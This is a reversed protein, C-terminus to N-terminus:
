RLVAADRWKRFASRDPLIHETLHTLIVVEELMSKGRSAQEVAGSLFSAALALPRRVPGTWDKLKVTERPSRKLEFYRWDVVAAWTAEIAFFLTQDEAHTGLRWAAWEAIGAGLAIVSQDNMRSIQRRMSPAEFAWYTRHDEDKWEYTLPAKVVGTNEIYAPIVQNM